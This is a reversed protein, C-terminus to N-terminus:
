SANCQRSAQSLTNCLAHHEGSPARTPVTPCSTMSDSPTLCLTTEKGTWPAQTHAHSVNLDLLVACHAALTCGWQAVQTCVLTMVMSSSLHASHKVMGTGRSPESPQVGHKMDAGHEMADLDKGSQMMDKAM